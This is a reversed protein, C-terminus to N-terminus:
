ISPSLHLYPLNQVRGDLTFRRLDDSLRVVPALASRCIEKLSEKSHIQKLQPNVDLLRDVLSIEPVSPAAPPPKVVRKRRATSVSASELLDDDPEIFPTNENEKNVADALSEFLHTQQKEIEGTRDKLVTLATRFEMDNIYKDFDLGQAFSVLSEPDDETTPSDLNVATALDQSDIRTAQGEASDFLKRIDDRQKQCFMRIIRMRKERKRQREKKEHEKILVKRRTDKLLKRYEIMAPPLQYDPPTYVNRHYLLGPPDAVSTINVFRPQGPPEPAPLECPRKCLLIGFDTM